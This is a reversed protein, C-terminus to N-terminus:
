YLRYVEMRYLARAHVHYQGLPQYGSAYEIAALLEEIAPTRSSSCGIINVVSETKKGYVLGMFSSTSKRAANSLRQFMISNHM